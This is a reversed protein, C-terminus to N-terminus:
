WQDGCTSTTCVAVDITWIGGGVKVLDNAELNAVTEKSLTLKKRIAKKM